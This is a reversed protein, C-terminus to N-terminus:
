PRYMCIVIIVPLIIFCIVAKILKAPTLNWYDPIYRMASSIPKTVEYEVYAWGSLLNTHCDTKNDYRKIILNSTLPNGDFGYVKFNVIGKCYKFYGGIPISGFPMKLNGKEKTLDLPKTANIWTKTHLTHNANHVQYAKFIYNGYILLIFAIVYTVSLFPVM